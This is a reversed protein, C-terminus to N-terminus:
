ATCMRFRETKENKYYVNFEESTDKVSAGDYIESLMKSILGAKTLEALIVDTISKAKSSLTSSLVLLHEAIKM